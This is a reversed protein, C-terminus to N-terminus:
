SEGLSVDISFHRLANRLDFVSVLGNECVYPTIAKCFGVMDDMNSNSEYIATKDEQIVSLKDDVAGVTVHSLLLNQIEQCRVTLKNGVKESWFTAFHYNKIVHSCSLAVNGDYQQQAKSLVQQQQTQEGQFLGFYYNRFLKFRITSIHIFRKQLQDMIITQDCQLLQCIHSSFSKLLKDDRTLLYDHTMQNFMKQITFDKEEISYEVENRQTESLIEFKGYFEFVSKSLNEDLVQVNTLVDHPVLILGCIFRSKDFNTFFSSCEELMPNLHNYFQLFLEYDQKMDFSLLSLLSADTECKSNDTVCRSTDTGNLLQDLKLYIEEEWLLIIISLFKQAFLLTV